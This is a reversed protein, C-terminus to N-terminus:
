AQHSDRERAHKDVSWIKKTSCINFSLFFFNSFCFFSFLNRRIFFVRVSEPSGRERERERERERVWLSCHGGRFRDTLSRCYLLHFALRLFHLTRWKDNWSGNNTLLKKILVVSVSCLILKSRLSTEVRARSLNRIAEPAYKAHTSIKVRARKPSEPWTALYKQTM